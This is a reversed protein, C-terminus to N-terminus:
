VSRMPGPLGGVFDNRALTATTSGFVREPGLHNLSVSVLDLRIRRRKVEHQISTSSAYVAVPAASTGNFSASTRSNVFVVLERKRRHPTFLQSQSASSASLANQSHLLRLDQAAFLRCLVNQLSKRRFDISREQSTSAVALKVAFGLHPM